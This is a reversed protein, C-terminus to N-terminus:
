KATGANNKQARCAQSCYLIAEWNKVWAKRWVMERKCVLCIKSPLFSKNGKFGAKM